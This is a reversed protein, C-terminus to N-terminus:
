RNKLMETLENMIQAYDEKMHERLDHTTPYMILVGILLMMFVLM